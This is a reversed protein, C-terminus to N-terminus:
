LLGLNWNSKREEEKKPESRSFNLDKRYLHMMMEYTSMLTQVKLKYLKHDNRELDLKMKRKKQTFISKRSHTSSNDQLLGM